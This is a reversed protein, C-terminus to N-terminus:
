PILEDSVYLSKESLIYLKKDFFFIKPNKIEILNINNIQNRDDTECIKIKDETNFILYYNTLWFLNDIKESFRNIFTKEGAEKQPQEYKKELSMIWIEHENFYVLKSGDPSFSFGKVPKFFEEFFLNDKNFIYLVSGEKLFINNNKATIEYEEEKKIEFPLINIKEESETYNFVFGKKNIYYINKDEATIAIIDDVLPSSIEKKEIDAERLEEKYKIVLKEEDKPHFYVKETEKELFDLSTIKKNEANLIFYYIQEKAGITLLINKQDSSLELDILEIKEPKEKNKLTLAGIRLDEQSILHSKINKNIEIIKLSWEEEKGDSLNTEKTIIKKNDPYFFFNEVEKSITTMNIKQPFLIINKAETVERKKIELIKEWSHYGDKIIKITYNKPTLNEILVSGFFIDTKKSIKEDINIQANKPWIKFYFMGPQSLKKEEWDFRWGLSHMVTAPAFILFLLLLFLFIFTRKKKTM